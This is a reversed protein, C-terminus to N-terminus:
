SIVFSFDRQESTVDNLTQRVSWTHYGPRLNTPLIATWRNDQVMAQALLNDNPDRIEVMAGSFGSGSLTPQQWPLTSGPPPTDVIAIDSSDM